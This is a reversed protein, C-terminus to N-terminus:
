RPPRRAPRRRCRRCCASRAGRAREGALRDGRPREGLGAARPVGPRSDCVAVSSPSSMTARRRSPRRRPPRRPRGSGRSRAAGAVPEGLHQHGGSAAADGDRTPAADVHGPAEARHLKSPTRRGPRRPPRRPRRRPRPADLALECNARASCHASITPTASRMNSNVRSYPAPASDGEAPRDDRELRELVPDGVHQTHSSPDLATLSAAPRPWRRRRDRSAPVPQGAHGLGVDGLVAEVDDVVAHLDGTADAHGPLVVDVEVVPAGRTSRATSRSGRLACPAARRAGRLRLLRIAHGARRSSLRRPVERGPRTRPDLRVERRPVVVRDVVVVSCRRRKSAPKAPM